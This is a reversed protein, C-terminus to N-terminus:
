KPEARPVAGLPANHDVTYSQLSIETGDKCRFNLNHDYYKVGDHAKCSLEAERLVKVTEDYSHDSADALIFTHVLGTYVMLIAFLLVLIWAVSAGSLEETSHAPKKSNIDVVNNM